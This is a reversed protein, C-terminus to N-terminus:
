MPKTAMGASFCRLIHRLPQSPSIPLFSKKKRWGPFSEQLNSNLSPVPSLSISVFIGTHGFFILNQQTSLHRGGITGQLIPIDSFGHGIAFIARRKGRVAHNSPNFM